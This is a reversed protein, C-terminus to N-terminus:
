AHVEVEKADKRKGILRFLASFLAEITLSLLIVLLTWAFMDETLLYQKADGIMTGISNKPMAIIEAAVGAKWAMGTSARCASIFYPKLSPLTLLRFRRVPSFKYLVTMERLQPDISRYGEDLNTWIVPLVILITTFTPINSAGIFILALVIFSAVPTAKIVSMMPLLLERLFRAHSTLLSLIVGLLIAILIGVLINWLSNATICYFEPTMALVSLRELVKWPTPLLLPKGVRWAAFWWIGVWFLVAVTIRILRKLVNM